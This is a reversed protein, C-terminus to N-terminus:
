DGKLEKLKKILAAERGLEGPAADPVVNANLEAGVIDLGRSVEDVFARNSYDAYAPMGAAFALLVMLSIKKM